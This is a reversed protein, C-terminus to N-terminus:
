TQGGNQNLEIEMTVIMIDRMGKRLYRQNTNGVGIQLLNTSSPPASFLSISTFKM